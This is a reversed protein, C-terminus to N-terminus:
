FVKEGQNDHTRVSITAGCISLSEYFRALYYADLSMVLEGAFAGQSNFVKRTFQISWRKSVRGLVPKSIFLSDANTNFHVKIHERDSLDVRGEIPLNGMTMVGSTDTMSIQLTLDDLLQDAPAIKGLNFAAPELAYTARLIKLNQDVGEIIRNVNEGFGRALNGSDQVADRQAQSREQILHITISIWVLGIALVIFFNPKPAQFSARLRRFPSQAPHEQDM